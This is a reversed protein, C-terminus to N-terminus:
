RYKDRARAVSNRLFGVGKIDVAASDGPVMAGVGPPTGTSVVDGPLLTMVSSIFSVLRSVTFVFDAITSGQRQTGNLFLKIAADRAPAKTEIWPGLPCFTDFSKARTWQGDKKQLDRATVDNLCTFGLIYQRASSQSVERAKKGIVVALEAEYDLRTVGRPYIINEEHAILSTAPKMFIVPERPVAMSLEAAHRRYNLGALVIKAFDGAPPLLRIRGLEVSKGSRKIGAFPPACLFAVSDGEM